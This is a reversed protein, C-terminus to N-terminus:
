RKITMLLSVLWSQSVVVRNCGANRAASLADEAARLAAEADINGSAINVGPSITIAIGRDGYRTPPLGISLRGGVCRRPCIRVSSEDHQNPAAFM